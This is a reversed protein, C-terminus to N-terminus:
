VTNHAKRHALYLANVVIVHIIKNATPQLINAKGKYKPVGLCHIRDFQAHLSIRPLDLGIGQGM